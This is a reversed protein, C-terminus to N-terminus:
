PTFDIKIGTLGEIVKEALEELPADNENTSQVSVYSALAGLILVILTGVLGFDRLKKMTNNGKPQHM